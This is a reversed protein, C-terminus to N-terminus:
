LPGDESQYDPSKKIGSANPNDKFIQGVRVAGMVLFVSGATLLIQERGVAGGALCGAGLAMNLVGRQFTIEGLQMCQALKHRLSEPSQRVHHRSNGM